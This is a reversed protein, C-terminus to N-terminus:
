FPLVLHCGAHSTKRHQALQWSRGRYIQYSKITPKVYIRIAVLNFSSIRCCVAFIMSLINSPLIECISSDHQSQFPLILDSLTLNSLSQNSLPLNALTLNSLSTTSLFFNHYLFSISVSSPPPLPPLPPLPSRWFFLFGIWHHQIVKNKYQHDSCSLIFCHGGAVVICMHYLHLDVYFCTFVRGPM